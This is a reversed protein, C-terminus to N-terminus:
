VRLSKSAIVELIVTPKGKHGRNVGHYAVLGASWKWHMFDISELMGLLVLLQCVL